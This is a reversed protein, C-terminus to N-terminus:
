GGRAWPHHPLRTGTVDSWQSRHYEARLSDPARDITEMRVPFRLAM